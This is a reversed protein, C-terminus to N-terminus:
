NKIYSRLMILGSSIYLDYFWDCQQKLQNLEPCFVKDHIPLTYLLKNQTTKVKFPFAKAVFIDLTGLLMNVKFNVVENIYIPHKDTM